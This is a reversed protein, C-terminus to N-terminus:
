GDGVLCPLCQVALCDADHVPKRLRDIGIAKRGDDSIDRRVIQSGARFDQMHFVVLSNQLHNGGAEAVPDIDGAGPRNRFRSLFESGLV